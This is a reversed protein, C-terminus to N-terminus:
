DVRKKMNQKICYSVSSELSYEKNRFFDYIFVSNYPLITDSNYPPILYCGFIGITIKEALKDDCEIIENGLRYVEVPSYYSSDGAINYADVSQQGVIEIFGDSDLDLVYDACLLQIKTTKFKNYQIVLLTRESIPDYQRCLIYIVRGENTSICSLPCEQPLYINTTDVFVCKNDVNFIRLNNAFTDNAEVFLDYEFFLQDSQANSLIPCLIVFLSPFLIKNIIKM